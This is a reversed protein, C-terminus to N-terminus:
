IISMVASASFIRWRRRRAYATGCPYHHMMKIRTVEKTFRGALTWGIRYGPALSKSLSSCYLVWGEKDFSKCTKPRSRGFYLEGYIDDEILPIRHRTLLQVLARKKEDPM